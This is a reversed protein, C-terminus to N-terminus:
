WPFPLNEPTIWVKMLNAFSFWAIVAVAVAWVTRQHLGGRRFWEGMLWAIWLGGGVVSVLHKYSVFFGPMMMYTRHMIPLHMLVGCCIFILGALGLGAPVSHAPASWVTRLTWVAAFLFLTGIIGAYLLFFAKYHVTSNAGAYSANYPNVVDMDINKLVSVSQLPWPVLVGDFLHALHYFANSVADEVMLAKSPYSTVFQAETVAAGVELRATPARLVLYTVLILAPALATHVALRPSIAKRVLLLTSLLIFALLLNLSQEWAGVTLLLALYYGVLFVFGGKKVYSVLFLGSTIAYILFLDGALCSAVGMFYYFMKHTAIFATGVLAAPRPVELARLLLYFLGCIIGLFVSYFVTLRPASLDAMNADVTQGHLPAWIDRDFWGVLLLGTPTYRYYSGFKVARFADAPTLHAIVEVQPRDYLPPYTRFLSVGYHWASFVATAILLAGLLDMVRKM